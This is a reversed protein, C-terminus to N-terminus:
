TGEDWITTISGALPLNQIGLPVKVVIGLFAGDYIRAPAALHIISTQETQVSPERTISSALPKVLVFCALGGNAVSFTVGTIKRVGTDGPALPCFMRGVAAGALTPSDCALLNSPAPASAGGNFVCNIVPSTKAVGNQNEYDFTFQGNGTGTSVCVPMVMVGDGDAYRPLTVTNDMVQTTLDDCDIFPYYLLYDLLHREGVYSTSTTTFSWAALYKRSPAKDDGHYIGRTGDLTAAALPTSAYYNAPPGGPFMSTDIYMAAAPATGSTKIFHSTFSRGADWAEAYKKVSRFGM